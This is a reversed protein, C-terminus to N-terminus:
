SSQILWLCQAQFEHIRAVFVYVDSHTTGGSPLPKMGVQGVM